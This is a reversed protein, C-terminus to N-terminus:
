ADLPHDHINRPIATPPSSPAVRQRAYQDMPASIDKAEKASYYLGHTTNWIVHTMGAALLPPCQSPM